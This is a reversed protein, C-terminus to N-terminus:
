HCIDHTNRCTPGIQCYQIAKYELAPSIWCIGLILICCIWEKMYEFIYWDLCYCFFTGFVLAVHCSKISAMGGRKCGAECDCSAWFKEFIFARSSKKRKPQQHCLQIVHHWPSICHFASFYLFICLIAIFHLSICLFAYFHMSICLFASFQLSICHISSFHLYICFLSAFGLLCM